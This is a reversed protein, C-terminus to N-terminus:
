IHQNIRADKKKMIWLKAQKELLIQEMNKHMLQYMIEKFITEQFQEMMVLPAQFKAQPDKHIETLVLMVKMHEKYVMQHHFLSKQHKHLALFMEKGM